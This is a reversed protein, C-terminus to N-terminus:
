TMVTGEYKYWPSWGNAAGSGSSRYHRICFYNAENASLSPLWTQRIYGTSSEVEVVIGAARREPKNTVYDTEGASQIRYKGPTMLDDLNIQNESTPALDFGNGYVLSRILDRDVTSLKDQKTEQLEANTPSYPVYKHTVEWQSKTCIMPKFVLPTQALTQYYAPYVAISLYISTLTTSDLLVGSGYDAKIYQTGKVVYMKYLTDSGGLPCGSLVHNGDCYIAADIGVGNLQFTAYSSASPDTPLGSVTVIGNQVDYTLGNRGSISVSTFQLLNKVGNDVLEALPAQVGGSTVPNMSEATPIADLNTGVVLLDQKTAFKETMTLNGRANKTGNLETEINEVTWPSNFKARPLDAM